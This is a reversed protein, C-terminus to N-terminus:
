TSFAESGSTNGIDKWCSFHEPDEEAHARMKLRLEDAKGARGSKIHLRLVHNYTYKILDERTQIKGKRKKGTLEGTKLYNQLKAANEAQTKASTPVHDGGDALNLLRCDPMARYKAIVRTEVDRWDDVDAFLVEMIPELGQDILKKIWNNVPRSRRRSERIHTKFREGPKNAKGVYRVMMTEPDILAYISSKATKPKTAM